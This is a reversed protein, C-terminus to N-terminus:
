HANNYIEKVMTNLGSARADECLGCNGKRRVQDYRYRNINGCECRVWYYFLYGQQGKAAPGIITLDGHREGIHKDRIEM